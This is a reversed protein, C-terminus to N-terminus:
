GVSSLSWVTERRKLGMDLGDRISLIHDRVLGFPNTKPNFIGISGLLDSGSVIDWMAATWQCEGRYIEYDSKEDPNIWFGSAYNKQRVKALYEDTFKSASKKGIKSRTETDHNRVYSERTRNEHMRRLRDKSFKVGRNACGAKFRYEDDVKSKVLESQRQREEDSWVRGWSGNSIGVHRKAEFVCAAARCNFRKRKEFASKYEEVQAGCYQCVFSRRNEPNAKRM